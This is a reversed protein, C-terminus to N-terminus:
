SGSGLARRREPWGAGLVLWREEVSKGHYKSELSFTPSNPLVVIIM